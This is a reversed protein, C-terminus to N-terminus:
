RNLINLLCVRTKILQRFLLELEEELIQISSDMKKLHNLFEDVQTNDEQSMQLVADVKEFENLDTEEGQYSGKKSLMLKSVLSWGSKRAQVKTGMIHSLMSELLSIAVSEQIGNMDKRRVASLLERVDQKNLSILDKVANCADLLRIYDDLIHDFWKEQCEQSINQQNHPLLLLEDISDYLTNLGNVRGNMSSLSSCAEQSSRVRSLNEEFQSMASHSESPLSLSRGHHLAKSRLPSVAMTKEQHFHPQPTQTSNSVSPLFNQHRGHHM